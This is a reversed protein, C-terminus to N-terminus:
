AKLKQLCVIRKIFGDKRLEKSTAQKKDEREKLLKEKEYLTQEQSIKRTECIM